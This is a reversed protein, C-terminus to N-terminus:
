EEGAADIVGYDGTLDGRAYWSDRCAESSDWCAPAGAEPAAATGIAFLLALGAGIALFTLKGM